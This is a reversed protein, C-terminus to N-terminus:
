APRVRVHAVEVPRLPITAVGIGPENVQGLQMTVLAVAGVLGDQGIEMQQLVQPIIHFPM